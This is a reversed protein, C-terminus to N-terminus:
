RCSELTYYTDEWSDELYYMADDVCSELEDIRSRLEDNEVESSDYDYFWEEATQGEFKQKHIFALWIVLLLLIVPVWGYENDSENM